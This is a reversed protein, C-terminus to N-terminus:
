ADEGGEGGNEIEDCIVEWCSPCLASIKWERVDLEEWDPAVDEGCRVCIVDRWADSRSRGYARKSLLDMLNM